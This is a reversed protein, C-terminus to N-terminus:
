FCLGSCLCRCDFLVTTQQQTRHWCPCWLRQRHLLSLCLAARMSVLRSRHAQGGVGSSQHDSARWAGAVDLQCVIADLRRQSSRLRQGGSVVVLTRQASGALLALHVRCQRSALLVSHRACANVRTVFFVVVVVVVVVCRAMLCWSSAGPDTSSLMPDVMLGGVAVHMGGHFDQTELM